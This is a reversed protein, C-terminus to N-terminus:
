IIAPEGVSPFIQDFTQKDLVTMKCCMEAPHATMWGTAQYECASIRGDDHFAAVTAAGEVAAYSIRTIM